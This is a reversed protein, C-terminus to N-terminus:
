IMSISGGLRWSNSSKELEKASKAGERYFFMQLRSPAFLAFFQLFVTDIPFLGNASKADHRNAKLITDCRVGHFNV